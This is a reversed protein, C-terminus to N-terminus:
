VQEHRVNSFKQGMVSFEARMTISMTFAILTAFGACMFSFGKFDFPAAESLFWATLPTFVLPAIISAFSSIGTICGQAMGQETSGVKKSVISRICPNVFVSLIVFMAAFYPVWYSWSISYLFVHTCSALLGITLLKEEGVSHALFPMLTLVALPTFCCLCWLCTKKANLIELKSHKSSKPRDMCRITEVGGVMGSALGASLVGSAASNAVADYHTTDGRIRECRWPVHFMTNYARQWKKENGVVITSRLANGGCIEGVFSLRKGFDCSIWGHVAVLLFQSGFFCQSLDAEPAKFFHVSVELGVFFTIRFCSGNRLAGQSQRPMEDFLARASPLPRPPSRAGEISRTIALSPSFFIRAFRSFIPSLHSAADATRAFMPVPVTCTVPCSAPARRSRAVPAPPPSLPAPPM